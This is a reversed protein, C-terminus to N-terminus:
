PSAGWEAWISGNKLVLHHRVGYQLVHGKPYQCGEEVNGGDTHGCVEYPKWRGLEAFSRLTHMLVSLAQDYERDARRWIQFASDLAEADRQQVLNLLDDPM